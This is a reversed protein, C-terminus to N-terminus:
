KVIGEEELFAEWFPRVNKRLYIHLPRFLPRAPMRQTGYEMWKAVRYVQLSTGPYRVKRPIGVVWKNGSRWYDISDVLLGTAEWTKLSLKKKKKYEYYSVSLPPWNRTYRQSDIARKLERKMVFAMFRAFKPLLRELNEGESIYIGPRWEKDLTQIVIEKPM